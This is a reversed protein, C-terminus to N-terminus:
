RDTKRAPYAATSLEFGDALTTPLDFVNRFDERDDRESKSLSEVKILNFVLEGIDDTTHVGWQKFVVPAMM